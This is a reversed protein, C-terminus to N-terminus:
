HALSFSCGESRKPLSSRARRELARAPPALLVALLLGVAVAVFVVRFFDVLWLGVAAAGAIALVRWSWAAAARVSPPVPHGDPAPGATM